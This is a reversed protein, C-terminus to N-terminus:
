RSSGASGIHPEDVAEYREIETLPVYVTRDIKIPRLEGTLCKKYVLRSSLNLRKGAQEVTLLRGDSAPVAVIETKAAPALVDALTLIAATAKDDGAMRLYEYFLAEIAPNV